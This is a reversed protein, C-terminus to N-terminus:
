EKGVECIAQFLDEPEFPKFLCGTASMSRLTNINTIEDSPFATVIIIPLSRGRKKLEMYVGLGHLIPLNLDLILMNISEDMAAELAEAGTSATRVRFGKLSLFQSVSEAFDPDDDAILVFGAPQIDQITTLVENLAFPKRLIRYAGEKDAQELLDEVAFGTMMIVLTNPFSEKLKSFTEVGNIGPLMVDMFTVDYSNNQHLELAEEGSGVVTIHHGEIELVSSLGEAFDIDDDVILIDLAKM